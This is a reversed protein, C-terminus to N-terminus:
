WKYGGVGVEVEEWGGKGRCIVMSHDTNIVKPPIKQSKPKIKPKTGEGTEGWM